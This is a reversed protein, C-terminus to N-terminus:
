KNNLALKASFIRRFEDFGDKTLSGDYSLTQTQADYNVKVTESALANGSLFFSLLLATRLFM